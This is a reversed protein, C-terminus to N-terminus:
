TKFLSKPQNLNMVRVHVVVELRAVGDLTLESDLMLVTMPTEPAVVDVRRVVSLDARDDLDASGFLAPAEGKQLDPALGAAMSIGQRFRPHSLDNESPDFPSDDGSAIMRAELSQKKVGEYIWGPFVLGGIRRMEFWAKAMRLVVHTLVGLAGAVIVRNEASDQPAYFTSGEKAHFLPLRADYYIRGLLGDVPESAEAAVLDAIKIDAAAAAMARKLWDIERESKNRSFRSSLLAEFALYMNRYADYLDDTVQALRYFRFGIHYRPVIVTPPVVNGEADTVKLTIRGIGIEFTATTVLRVVLGKPESWWLTHEDEADVIVCDARGLVSLLDLGQQVLRQGDQYTELASPLGCFHLVVDRQGKVMEIESQDFRLRADEPAASALKFAAGSASEGNLDVLEISGLRAM